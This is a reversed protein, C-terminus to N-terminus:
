AQVRATTQRPGKRPSQRSSCRLANEGQNNRARVRRRRRPDDDPPPKCSQLRRHVAIFRVGYMTLAALQQSLHLVSRGFRDLKWVLVCDFEHRAAASMLRDVAPRSAKSGSVGSDVYEAYGGREWCLKVYCKLRDAVFSGM